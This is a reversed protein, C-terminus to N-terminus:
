RAELLAKQFKEATQFRGAPDKRCAQDVVAAMRSPLNPVRQRIPVRDQHLVCRLQEAEQDDGPLNVPLSGALVFYLTAGVSYLDARPDLGSFNIIQEPPMFGVTGASDSPRTIRIGQLKKVLGFDAIKPIYKASGTASEVARLLINHPKIDRHIDSRAHLFRLGDLVEVFIDIALSLPLQHSRRAALDALSGNPAFETVLYPIGKADVGSDVFRIINIHRLDKIESMELDFRRIKEVSTLDTLRKLAFVRATARDYVKYVVGAGGRGLLSCIEYEGVSQGNLDSSKAVHKRCLYIVADALELTRGDSTALASVDEGCHACRYARPPDAGLSVKIRTEGLQIIDGDALLSRVSVAGNVRPVNTSGALAVMQWGAVCREIQVHRRRLCPDSASLLVDAGEGRGLVFPSRADRVVIRGREDGSLVTLVIEETGADHKMAEVDVGTDVKNPMRRANFIM